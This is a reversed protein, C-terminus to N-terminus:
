SWGVERGGRQQPPHPPATQEMAAPLIPTAEFSGWQRSGPAKGAPYITEETWSNGSSRSLTHGPWSGVWVKGLSNLM